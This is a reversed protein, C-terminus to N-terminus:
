SRKLPKVGGMRKIGFGVRFIDPMNLRNDDTRYLVALEILDEILADPKGGRLPDTTFRRPPLKASSEVLRRLENATWRARFQGVECPVALGRAAELLPEVWPYDEKIEEIRIRSAEAVGAQIGEYHLARSHAYHTEATKQAAHKFALLFSRPSVRGLADALHSPIWTYTFGRKKDRGMWEGAISEVIARLRDDETVLERPLFFIGNHASWVIGLSDTLAARFASGASSSNVLATLILGYLEAPRWNLEVRSHRLKSSDPFRWIEADEEMDPRLFFKLRIAKRSRCTLAFRLAGSILARVSAWDTALRDLADFLVLLIRDHSSLEADCETLLADANQPNATIWACAADWTDHPFIVERELLVLMHQLVVAKWIAAPERNAAILERVVEASPFQKNTDDLGFGVRATAKALAPSGVLEAVLPRHEDSSLVATWLSKGAGRMGVVVTSELSLAKHHSLPVYVRSLPPAQLDEQAAVDPLLILAERVSMADTATKVSRTARRDKM